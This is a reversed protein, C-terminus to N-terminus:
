RKHAPLILQRLLTRATFVAYEQGPAELVFAPSAVNSGAAAQDDTHLVTRPSLADEVLSLAGIHSM